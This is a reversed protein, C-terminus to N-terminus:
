LRLSEEMYLVWVRISIFHQHTRSLFKVDSSSETTQIELNTLVADDQPTVQQNAYTVLRIEDAM